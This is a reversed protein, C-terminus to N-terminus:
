IIRFLHVSNLSVFADHPNSLSLHSLSAHPLHQQLNVAEQVEDNKENRTTGTVDARRQKMASLRVAKM